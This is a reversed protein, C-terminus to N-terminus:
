SNRVTEGGVIKDDIITKLANTGDQWDMIGDENTDETLVVQCYM